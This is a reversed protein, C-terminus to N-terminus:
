SINTSARNIKGGPQAMTRFPQLAPAAPFTGFINATTRITVTPTATAAPTPPNNALHISALTVIRIGPGPRAFGHAPHLTVAPIKGSLKPIDVMSVMATHLKSVTFRQKEM